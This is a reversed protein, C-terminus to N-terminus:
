MDVCAYISKISWILLLYYHTESYCKLAHIFIRQDCESEM